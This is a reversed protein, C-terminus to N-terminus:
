GNDLWWALNRYAALQEASQLGISISANNNTNTPPPANTTVSQGTSSGCLTAFFTNEVWTAQMVGKGGSVSINGSILASNGATTAGELNFSASNDVVNGITGRFIIGNNDIAELSDGAQRLDLSIVSRGSNATVFRGDNGCASSDYRYIGGVSIGVTRSTGNASDVTCGTHISLALIGLLLGATLVLSRNNM